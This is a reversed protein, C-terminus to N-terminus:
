DYTFNVGIVAQVNGVSVREGTPAYSAQIDLSKYQDSVSGLSIKTNSPIARGRISLMIGVGTAPNSPAVNSFIYDTQMKGNITFSISRKRGCKVSLNVDQPSQNLPYDKMTVNFNRSNVDCGGLPIAFDRDSFIHFFFDKPNASDFYSEYRKHIAFTALKDGAKIPIAQAADGVPSLVIKLTMPWRNGFSSADYSQFFTRSNLPLSHYTEKTSFNEGTSIVRVNYISSLQPGLITSPELYLMDKGPAWKSEFQCMLQRRSDFVINVDDGVEANPTIYLDRNGESFVPGGNLTCNFASVGFSFTILLLACGISRLSYVVNM